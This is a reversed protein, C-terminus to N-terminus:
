GASLSPAPVGSAPLVGTGSLAGMVDRMESMLAQGTPDIVSHGNTRLQALEALCRVLEPLAQASRTADAALTLQEEAGARDGAEALAAGLLRRARWEAAAPGSRMAADLALRASLAATEPKGEGLVVEALGVRAQTARVSTGDESRLVERLLARAADREGRRRAVTALALRADNALNTHQHRDAEALLARLVDDPQEGRAVDLLAHELASRGALEPDDAGARDLAMRADEWRGLTRFVGGLTLSATAAISPDGGVNALRVATRLREGADILAGQNEDIVALATLCRAQGTDDGLRARADLAEHLWRRADQTRGLRRAADALHELNSASRALDGGGRAIMLAESFIGIADEAEGEHLVAAGLLATADARDAPPLSSRLAEAATERAARDDGRNLFAYARAVRLRAREAARAPPEGPSEAGLITAARDFAALAMGHRGDRDMAQGIRRELTARELGQPELDLAGSFHEEAVEPSGCALAVEGLGAHAARRLGDDKARQAFMLARSYQSEAEELAFTRRSEDAARLGWRAAEAWAEAREWHHTLLPAFEAQGTEDSAEREYWEAVLRHFAQRHKHLLSAYAAEQMLGHRFRFDSGAPGAAREVVGSSDLAALMTTVDVGTGSINGLLMSPFSRGIVAATQALRKQAEPLRDIRDLLLGQLTEPVIVTREGESLVWRGSESQRLVGQDILSRLVEELFLPNGEANSMLLARIVALEPDAGVFAEALTESEEQGLPLLEFFDHYPPSARRVIDDIQGSLTTAETRHATIILLPTRRSGDLVHGLLQLSARDALHLDDLVIVLPRMAAHSELLDRVGVFLRNRLTEDDTRGLERREEDTLELRLMHALFVSADEQAEGLSIIQTGSDSSSDHAMGLRRIRSTDNLRLNMSERPSVEGLLNRVVDVWVALAGGVGLSPATADIWRLDHSRSQDRLEALLRTKGIGASGSLSVLGGEGENLRGLAAGLRGLEVDRGIVPARLGPLRDRERRQARRGVADYIQVPESKGKVQVPPLQKYSFAHRTLRYTHESVLIQGEESKDELRAALNVADGLVTFESRGGGGVRGAIVLGSNIGAHLGIPRPIRQEFRKSMAKLGARMELACAVAREPDDEHAHPAGFLAMVADGIFKDIHGGYRNVCSVMEGFFVNLIEHVQEPDLLESMATFGSMDAFVVTVQRREAEGVPPGGLVTGCNACYRHNAPNVVSCVLCNM